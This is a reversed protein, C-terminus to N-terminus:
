GRPEDPIAEPKGSAASRYCAEAIAVARLGDELDIPVPAGSALARAFRRLTEAVTPVVPGTDITAKETGDIRYASGLVHDGCLQGREAAIEIWGSRGATSRSGAVTALLPSGEFRLAAVFTDETKVTAVRATAAFASVPSRGTFFRLLDFGHVGTHLIIGGGSEAPEDLWRLRSPEFRQSLCIQHIQGIRDLRDHIARVV